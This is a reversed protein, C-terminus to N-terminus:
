VEFPIRLLLKVLNKINVPRQGGNRYEHFKDICSQLFANYQEEYKACLTSAFM